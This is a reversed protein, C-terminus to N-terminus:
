SKRKKKAKLKAKLAVDDKHKMWKLVRGIWNFTRQCEKTDYFLHGIFVGQDNKRICGVIMGDMKLSSPKKVTAM